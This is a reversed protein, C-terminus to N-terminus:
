NPQALNARLAKKDIKGIPTLPLESVFLIKGPIKYAAVNKRCFALIDDRWVDENKECFAASPQVVLLVEETAGMGKPIGLAAARDIVPHELLREELETSFVKYGGVNIMDKLRDTITVYGDADLRAADGTHLWVTGEFNQLVIQTQEPNRWYGQMVQPGSVLLEGETGGPEIPSGDFGALRLQTGPLAQGVTNPRARGPYNMTIGPSAETMGYGELVEVGLVDELSRKLSEPMPAAGSMAFKLFNFKMSTFEPLGLLKEYLLPVAFLLSPRYKKIQHLIFKLDRPNPILLWSGAIAITNLAATLGAIHFFPLISLGTEGGIEPMTVEISQQINSLLNAHSLMAGKPSGTTGGTYQIAATSSAEVQVPVSLVPTSQLVHRFWVERPDQLTVKPHPLKRLLRAALRIGLPMLDLPRTIVILKLSPQGPTIQQMTRTYVDDYTFLAAAELDKLQWEAEPLSALPSLGSIICGAKLAGMMAILYQPINPLNIAVRDGPKIGAEVLAAAVQASLNDYEAYSFSRDLFVFATNRPYQRATNTLLGVLNQAAM